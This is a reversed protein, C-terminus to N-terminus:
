EFSEFADILLERKPNKEYDIMVFSGNVMAPYRIGLIYLCGNEEIKELKKRQREKDRDYKYFVVQRDALTMNFGSQAHVPGPEMACNFTGNTRYLMHRTLDDITRANNDATTCCASLAFAAFACFLPFLFKKM